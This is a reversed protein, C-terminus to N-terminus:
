KGKLYQMLQENSMNDIDKETIQPGAANASPTGMAKNLVDALQPPILQNQAMRKLEQQKSLKEQTAPPLFGFVVDQPNVGGRKALDAYQADVQDQIAKQSSWLNGAQGLFDKRQSESLRQGEMAKNYLNMIQTPVGAANQATAFEGERVTSGPDLMKMYGFILSLDGAASPDEAASIVRQYAAAVDQTQKTTPLANREKRLGETSAALKEGSKGSASARAIENAEKKLGLEAAFKKEDLAASKLKIDRDAIEKEKAESKEKQSALNALGAQGAKAGGAGGELGGAAAGLLTPVIGILAEYLHNKNFVSTDKKPAEPEVAKAQSVEIKDESPEKKKKVNESLKELNM